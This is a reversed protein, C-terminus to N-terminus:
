IKLNKDVYRNVQTYHGTASDFVYKDVGEPDYGPTKVQILSMLQFDFKFLQYISLDFIGILYKANKRRGLLEKNLHFFLFGLRVENYWSNVAEAVKSMM